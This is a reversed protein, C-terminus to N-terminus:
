HAPGGGVHAADVPERRPQRRGSRARSELVARRVSGYTAQEHCLWGSYDARRTASRSPGASEETFWPKDLAAAVPAMDPTQYDIPSGDGAYQPPYTHLAPLTNAPLRSSRPGTSARGAGVTSISGTSTSSGARRASTARTSRPSIGSRARTSTRSIPPRHRGQRVGGVGTAAARRRHLDRRHGHREQLPGRQGHQGPQRRLCPLGGVRRQPGARYPDIATYDVVSRDAGPLCNAEWAHARIDRNVLHNRFASLDLVVRM